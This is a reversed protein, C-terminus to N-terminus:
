RSDDRCVVTRFGSGKKNGHVQISIWKDLVSQITQKLVTKVSTTREGVIGRQCREAPITGVSRQGAFHGYKWTCSCRVLAVKVKGVNEPHDKIINKGGLLGWECWEALAPGVCVM